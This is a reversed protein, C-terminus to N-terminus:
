IFRLNIIYWLRLTTLHWLKGVGGNDITKESFQTLLMNELEEDILGKKLLSSEKAILDFNILNMQALLAESFEAKDKRNYIKEPYLNKLSERLILKITGNQYKYYNPLSLLYEVLNTDFFPHRFEINENMELSRYHNNDTHMVHHRGLISNINSHVIESKISVNWYDTFEEPRESYSIVERRLLLKLVKKISKPMLKKLLIVFIDRLSYHYSYYLLSLEQLLYGFNYERIYDLFIDYTGTFVHDGGHGTLCVRVNNAVMSEGLIYNQLFSGYIPWNKSLSCSSDLRYEDRFDLKDVDICIADSNLTKIVESTYEWEDCSYTQYRMSFTKIKTDTLTNAILSIASSDLGGSLECGWDGYVRLRNSVAEELRKKVEIIAEEYSINKNIKIKEPFWYRSKKLGTQLFTFSYAPPIRFINQYMTEEYKITGFRGFSKISNENLIIKMGNLKLLVEIYSSFYLHQEDFYFYFPRNAFRDRAAFLKKEEKDWVVFAFDGILYKTCDEGWKEYSRLILDLDTIIEDDDKRISLKKILEKRNDIRADAILVLKGNPSVYPYKEHPAEPTTWLMQHGLGVNDEVWIDEADWARHHMTELMNQIEKEKVISNDFRIIGCIGSM